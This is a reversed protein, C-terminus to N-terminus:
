EEAALASQMAKLLDLIEDLKADADDMRMELSTLRETLSLMEKRTPLSMQQLFQEMMGSLQRRMLTTAELSSELQQGMSEAFGKSAVTESMPGSWAKTWTDWFQIWQGFPDVEPEESEHESM